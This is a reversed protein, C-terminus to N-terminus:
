MSHADLTCLLVAEPVILFTIPSEYTETEIHFYHLLQTDSDLHNAIFGNQVGSGCVCVCVCRVLLILLHDNNDSCIRIHLDRRGSFNSVILM